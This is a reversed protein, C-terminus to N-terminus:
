LCSHCRRAAQPNGQSIPMKSQSKLAGLWEPQCLWLYHITSWLKPFRWSFLLRNARWAALHWHLKKTTKCCISPLYIHVRHGKSWGEWTGSHSQPEEAPTCTHWNSSPLPSPFNISTKSRGEERKLQRLKLFNWVSSHQTSRPTHQGQKGQPQSAGAWSDTLCLMELFAICPPGPENYM